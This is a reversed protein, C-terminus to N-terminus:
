NETSTQGASAALASNLKEATSRIAVLPDYGPQGSVQGSVEVCVPGAYKLERLLRFYQVYDTRGEGPLLFRFKAADGSTDKVHIFRTRPLLQTLTTRLDLGQLEFHSFDYAAQVAPSGCEQLLWLLREPSNMASGVHAKILLTVQQEQAVTAWGQLRQLMGAKQEDWKAPNGGVVTELMPPQEPVLDRALQAATRIVQLSAQQVTEDCVLPIQIMLCPLTLNLEQLRQATQRRATADFVAPETPFGANLCFEVHRYGAAACAQLSQDLPLQKTGYLSFGLNLGEVVEVSARRLTGSLPESVSATALGCLPAAGVAQLFRRRQWVAVQDMRSM